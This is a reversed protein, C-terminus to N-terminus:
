KKPIAFYRAPIACLNPMNKQAMLENSESGVEIVRANTVYETQTSSWILQGLNLIELERRLGSEIERLEFLSPLFWDDYGDISIRSCLGAASEYDNYEELIKNTNSLGSGIEESTRFVFKDISGWYCSKKISDLSVVIGSISDESYGDDFSQLIYAIIGGGYEAGVMPPITTFEMQLGYAIGDKNKAYARVYYKTRYDLNTMVSKFEGTGADDSTFSDAITPNPQTIWCVGRQTIDLGGDSIIVGGCEAKTMGINSVPKTTVEPLNKVEETPEDKKCSNLTGVVLLTLLLSKFLRM